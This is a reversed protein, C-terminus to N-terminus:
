DPKYMSEVFVSPYTRTRGGSSTVTRAGAYEVEVIMGRTHMMESMPHLSAEGIIAKVSKGSTELVLAAWRGLYTFGKCRLTSMEGEVEILQVENETAVAVAEKTGKKVEEM